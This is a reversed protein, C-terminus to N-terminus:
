SWWVTSHGFSTDLHSNLKGCSSIALISGCVSVALVVSSAPPGALFRAVAVRGCFAADSQSTQPTEPTEGRVARRRAGAM